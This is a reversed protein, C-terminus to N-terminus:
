HIIDNENVASSKLAIHDYLSIGYPTGSEVITYEENEFLKVIRKFVAYGKNINYVGDLKKQERLTYRENSDPRVAVDGQQIEGSDIYYYKETAYFLTAPVFETVTAGDKLTREMLLGDRDSDGGKTVYDKPVILFEKTTIASNPIKLGTTDTLLLKLEVFRDTAFRIMSNQFELILYNQGDKPIIKSLAWATTNDKKFEVKINEEEALEAALDEEIPVVVHWIESTIMKYVADGASVTQRQLFNNKQYNHIDFMSATFNDVTAEEMGDTNYVVVGAEEAQCAHLGPLETGAAVAGIEKRANSNLAEVLAAEMDYKFQYVQHFNVDSYGSLYQDAVAELQQYSEDSIQLQGDNAAAMQQYFNGSEDISYVYSGASAKTGDKYYYNVYGSNKAYYITEDRLILGEFLTNQAITGQNVEYPSTHETTFYTFVYYMLYLFLIVFIVIGINIQIPKRYKVVKRKRKETVSRVM